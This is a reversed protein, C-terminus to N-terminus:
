MAAHKNFNLMWQIGYRDIVQGYISDWSSDGVPWVVAGGDSLKDFYTRLEDEGDCTLALSYVNGVVRGAEDSIMDGALITFDPTTYFAHFVKNADEPSANSGNPGDKVLTIDTDGGFISRYFELAEATKGAFNIYPSLATM